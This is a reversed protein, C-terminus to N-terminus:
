VFIHLASRINKRMKKVEVLRNISVTNLFIILLKFIKVFRFFKNSYNSYFHNGFPMVKDLIRLIQEAAQRKAQLSGNVEQKQPSQESVPM